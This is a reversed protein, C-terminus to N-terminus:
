EFRPPTGYPGWLKGCKPCKYKSWIDEMEKLYAAAAPPVHGAKLDDATIQPAKPVQPLPIMEGCHPCRAPEAMTYKGTKPNKFWGLKEGLSDWKSRPLTMLELTEADIKEVPEALVWEPPKSRRMARQWCFGAVVLLMAVIVLLWIKRKDLM